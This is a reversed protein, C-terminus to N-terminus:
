SLGRPVQMSIQVPREKAPVPLMWHSAQSNKKEPMKKLNPIKKM